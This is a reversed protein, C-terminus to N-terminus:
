KVLPVTATEEYRMLARFKAELQLYRAAQATSLVNRAQRFTRKLLKAEDEEVSIAENAVESATREDVSGTSWARAYVLINELRRRNLTSLAQQHADYVPWFRTAQEPSLTLQETVVARKRLNMQADAAQMMAIADSEEQTPLKLNGAVLAFPVALIVALVAARIPSM